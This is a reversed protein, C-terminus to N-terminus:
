GGVKVDQLIYTNVGKETFNWIRNQMFSVLKQDKEVKHGNSSLPCPMIEHGSNTCQLLNNTSVGFYPFLLAILKKTTNISYPFYKSARSLACSIENIGKFGLLKNSLSIFFTTTRYTYIVQSATACKDCVLLFSVVVLRIYM